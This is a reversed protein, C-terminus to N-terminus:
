ILLDQELCSIYRIFRQTSLTSRFKRELYFQLSNYDISLDEKYSNIQLRM